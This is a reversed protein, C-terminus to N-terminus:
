GAPIELLASARGRTTLRFADGERELLGTEVRRTLLEAVGGMDAELAGRVVALTVPDM